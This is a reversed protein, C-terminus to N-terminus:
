SSIEEVVVGVVVFKQDFMLACIRLYKSISIYMHMSRHTNTYYKITFIYLPMAIYDFMRYVPMCAYMWVCVWYM